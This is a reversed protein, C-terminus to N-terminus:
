NSPDVPTDKSEGVRVCRLGYDRLARKLLARLRIIAPVDHAEARLVLSYVERETAM